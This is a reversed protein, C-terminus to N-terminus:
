KRHVKAPRSAITVTTNLNLLSHLSVCSRSISEASVFLCTLPVSDVCLYLQELYM